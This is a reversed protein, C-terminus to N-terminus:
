RQNFEINWADKCHNEDRFIWNIFSILWVIEKEYAMASISKNESNFLMTGGALDLHYAVNFAYERMSFSGKTVEKYLHIAHGVIFIPIFLVLAMLLLLYDRM